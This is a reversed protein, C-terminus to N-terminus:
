QTLAITHFGSQKAATVIANLQRDSSLLGSEELAELGILTTDGSAEAYPEIRDLLDSPCLMVYLVPVAQTTLSIHSLDPAVHLSPSQM